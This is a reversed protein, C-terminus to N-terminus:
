LDIVLRIGPIIAFDDEERANQVFQIDPSLYMWKNIALNYYFEFGWTDRLEIESALLDVFDNSLGNYWAGAGM